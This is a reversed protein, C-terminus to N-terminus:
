LIRSTCIFIGSLKYLYQVTYIISINVATYINRTSIYRKPVRVPPKSRSRTNTNPKTVPVPSKSKSRTTVPHAEIDKNPKSEQSTSRDRKRSKRSKPAWNMNLGNHRLSPTM